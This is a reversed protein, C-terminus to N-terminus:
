QSPQPRAPSSRPLFIREHQRKRARHSQHLRRHLCGMIPAQHTRLRPQHLDQSQQPRKSYQQKFNLVLESHSFHVGYAQSYLSEAQKYDGEQFYRPSTLVIASIGLTSVLTYIIVQKRGRQSRRSQAVNQVLTTEIPLSLKCLQTRRQLPIEM